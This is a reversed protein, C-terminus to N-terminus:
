LLFIYIHPNKIKKVVWSNSESLKWSLLNLHCYQFYLSTHICFPYSYCCCLFSIFFIITPKTLSVYFKGNNNLLSPCFVRNEIVMMTIYTFESYFFTLYFNYLYALYLYFLDVNSFLHKNFVQISKNSIKYM